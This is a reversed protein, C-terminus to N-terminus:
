EGKKEQCTPCSNTLNHRANSAVVNRMHERISESFGGLKRAKRKYKALLKKECRVQFKETLPEKM